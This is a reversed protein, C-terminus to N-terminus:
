GGQGILLAELEDERIRWNNGLKVSNPLRGDALAARVLEEAEKASLQELRHSAIEIAKTLSFTSTKGDENLDADPRTPTVRGFVHGSRRRVGVPVGSLIGM